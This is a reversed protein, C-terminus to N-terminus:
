MTIQSLNIVSIELIYASLEDNYAIRIRKSRVFTCIEIYRGCAASRVVACCM